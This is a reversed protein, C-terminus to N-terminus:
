LIKDGKITDLIKDVAALYTGTWAPETAEAAETLFPQAAINRAPWGWHIPGAYPVSKRGARIVAARQTGTARVSQALKGSDGVPADGKGRKAVIDAVERHADKMEQMDVGAKKMQKRLEGAGRVRMIDAM